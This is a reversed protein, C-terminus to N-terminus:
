QVGGTCKSYYEGHKPIAASYKLTEEIPKYFVMRQWCAIQRDQAQCTLLHAIFKVSNKKESILFLGQM